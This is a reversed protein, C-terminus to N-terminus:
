TYLTQERLLLTKFNHFENDSIKNVELYTDVIGAVLNFQLKRWVRSFM